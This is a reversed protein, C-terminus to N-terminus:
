PTSRRTAGGFSKCPNTRSCPGSENTLWEVPTATMFYEDYTLKNNLLDAKAETSFPQGSHAEIIKIAWERAANTQAEKPDARLIAIGIKVLEIDLERNRATYTYFASSIAGLFAIAAVIITVIETPKFRMSRGTM